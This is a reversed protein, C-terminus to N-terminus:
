LIIHVRLFNSVLLFHIHTNDEFTMCARLCTCNLLLMTENIIRTHRTEELDFDPFLISNRNSDVLVLRGRLRESAMEGLWGAAGSAARIALDTGPTDEGPLM